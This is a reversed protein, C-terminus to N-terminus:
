DFSDISSGSFSRNFLSAFTYSLTNVSCIIKTTGKLSQFSEDEGTCGLILTEYSKKDVSTLDLVAEGSKTVQLISNTLRPYHDATKRNFRSEVLVLHNFISLEM